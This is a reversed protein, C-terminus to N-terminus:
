KRFTAAAKMFKNEAEKSCFTRKPVSFFTTYTEDIFFIYDKNEKIFFRWEWAILSDSVRTQIRIGETSLEITRLGIAGPRSLLLKMQKTNLSHRWLENGFYGIILGLGFMLAALLSLDFFAFMVAILMYGLYWVASSLAFNNNKKWDRNVYKQLNWIDEPVLEFSIKL